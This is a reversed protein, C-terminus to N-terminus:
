RPLIKFHGAGVSVFSRLVVVIKSTDQPTDPPREEDEDSMIMFDFSLCLLFSFLM